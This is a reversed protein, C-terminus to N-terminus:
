QTTSLRHLLHLAPHGCDAVHTGILCPVRSPLHRETEISLTFQLNTNKRSKSSYKLSWFPRARVCQAGPTVHDLAASIDASPANRQSVAARSYPSRRSLWLTSTTAPSRVADAAYRSSPLRHMTIHQHPNNPRSKEPCFKGREPQPRALTVPRLVCVFDLTLNRVMRSVQGCSKM